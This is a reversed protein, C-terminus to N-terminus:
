LPMDKITDLSKSLGCNYSLVPLNNTCDVIDEPWETPYSANRLNDMVSTTAERKQRLWERTEEIAERPFFAALKQDDDIEHGSDYVHGVMFYRRIACFAKRKRLHTVSEM